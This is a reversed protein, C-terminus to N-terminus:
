LIFYVFGVKHGAKNHRYNHQIVVYNGFGDGYYGTGGDVAEIVTGSYSAVVSTGTIASIDLAYHYGKREGTVYM